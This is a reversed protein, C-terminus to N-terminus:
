QALTMYGQGDSAPIDLNPRQVREQEENQHQSRYESVMNRYHEQLYDRRRSINETQAVPYNGTYSKTGAQRSEELVREFFTRIEEEEQEDDEHEKKEMCQRGCAATIRPNPRDVARIARPGFMRLLSMLRSTM